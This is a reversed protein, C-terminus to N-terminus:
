EAAMVFSPIGKFPDVAKESRATPNKLWGMKGGAALALKESPGRELGRPWHLMKLVPRWNSARM